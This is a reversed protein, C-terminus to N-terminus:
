HTPTAQAKPLSGVEMELVPEQTVQGREDTAVWRVLVHTQGALPGDPVDFTVRDGPALTLPLDPTFDHWTLLGLVPDTWDLNDLAVHEGYTAWQLQSVTIAGPAAADNTGDVVLGQTPDLRPALSFGGVRRQEADNWFTFDYGVLEITQDQAFTMGVHVSGGPQVPPFCIYTLQWTYFGNADPGGVRDKRDPGRNGFYQAVAPFGAAGQIKVTVVLRTMQRNTNNKFTQNFDKCGAAALALVAVALLAARSRDRVFRM